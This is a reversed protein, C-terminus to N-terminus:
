PKFILPQTALLRAGRSLGAWSGGLGAARVEKRLKFFNTFNKVDWIEGPHAKMLGSWCNMLWEVDGPQVQTGMMEAQVQSRAGLM